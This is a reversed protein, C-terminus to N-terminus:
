LDECRAHSEVGREDNGGSVPSASVAKQGLPSEVPRGGKARAGALSLRPAIFTSPKRKGDGSSSSGLVSRRSVKLFGDLRAAKGADEQVIPWAVGDAQQNGGSSISATDVAEEAGDAGDSGMGSGVVPHLQRALPNQVHEISAEDLMAEGKVSSPRAYIEGLEIGETKEGECDKEEESEEHEGRLLAGKTFYSLLSMAVTVAGAIINLAFLGEAQPSTTSSSEKDAGLYAIECVMMGISEVTKILLCYKMLTINPYGMSLVFFKSKKWPIFQLMTVDCLTFLIVVEIMWVNEKAYDSDMLTRLGSVGEVHKDIKSVYEPPGLLAFCSMASGVVHLLRFVFMTAGLSAYKSDQWVASVLFLSSGFSIGPILSNYAAEARSYTALREPDKERIRTMMAAVAGFGVAIAFTGYWVVGDKFVQDILTPNSLTAVCATHADNSISGASCEKCSEQGTSDQYQLRGNCATCSRAGNASSSKGKECSICTSDNRAGLISGYTGPPCLQCSAQGTDNQYGGPPCKICTTQSDDPQYTGAECRTYLATGIADCYSGPPCPFCNQSGKSPSFFGKGCKRCSTTSNAGTVDSYTGNPCQECKVTGLQDTYEGKPCPLCERSIGGNKQYHGKDCKVCNFFFTSDIASLDSEYGKMCGCSSPYLNDKGGVCDIPLQSGQAIKYNGVKIRQDFLIKSTSLNSQGYSISFIGEGITVNDSDFRVDQLNMCNAFARSKIERVSPPIILSTFGREGAPSWGFANEGISTTSDGLILEFNSSNGEVIPGSRAFAESGISVSASKNKIRASITIKELQRCEYFARESVSEMTEPIFIERLPTEEFASKGIRKLNDSFGNLLKLEGIAKSGTRYFANDPISTIKPGIKILSVRECESFSGVGIEEVMLTLAKINKCRAFAYSGIRKLGIDFAVFSLYQSGEFAMDGIEQVQPGFIVVTIRKDRLAEVKLVPVTINQTGICLRNLKKCGEFISPPMEEVYDNVFVTQLNACNAFAASKFDVGRDTPYYSERKDLGNGLTLIKLGSKSFAEPGLKEVSDPITLSFLNSTGSFAFMRIEKVSDPIEIMNGSGKGLNNCGEFAYEHIETVNSLSASKLSTCGQFTHASVKTVKTPIVVSELKSCGYFASGGIEEVSDPLTASILNTCGSFAKPKISTITAPININVLETCNQFGEIPISTWSNPIDVNGNQDPSIECTEVYLVFMALILLYELKM